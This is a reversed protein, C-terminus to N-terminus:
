CSLRYPMLEWLVTGMAQSIQSKELPILAAVLTQVDRNMVSELEELADLAGWRLGLFSIHKLDVCSQRDHSILKGQVIV